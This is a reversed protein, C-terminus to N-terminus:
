KVLSNHGTNVQITMHQKSRDQSTTYHVVEEEDKGGEREGGDLVESFALDVIEGPERGNGTSEDEEVEVLM